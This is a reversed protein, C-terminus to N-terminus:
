KRPRLVNVVCLLVVGTDAFVAAWMGALGLAGLLLVGIKIGLALVINEMVLRHTSHGMEIAEAVAAPDDTSLVVDATEVAADTGKMGMAFGVHSRALVPADNVGDGVFAVQRGSATLREMWALKDAPLLQSHWEDLHLDEALADVASAYDGSLMVTHIGKARLAAVAAAASPKVRDGEVSFAGPTGSDEGDAVCVVGETLTGTKDFVVTDIRRVADLYNSGKFLIGRRSALGIGRFYSLPISLVLACPCSVVLFVLSRYFWTKVDLSPVVGSLQLLAPVGALLVAAAVVLPTYIRSFRTIFQEAPAKRSTAEEVLRLIRSLADEGYPRVVELRVSRDLAIMGASVEDGRRLVRAASEGTLASTDFRAEETLLLGDLPVRGGREVALMRGRSVEHPEVERSSGDAEILTCRDPRLAVLATISRRAKGVAMTQFNEGLLYFLMVAVAEPYEGIAFAGLTAITMLMFENFWSGKRLSRWTEALVEHAAVVYAAVYLAATGLPIVSFCTAVWAAALLLASAGFSLWGGVAHSHGHHDHHDHSAAAVHCASCEKSASANKPAHGDSTKHHHHHQCQCMIASIILNAAFIRIFLQLNTAFLVEEGDFCGSRQSESVIPQSVSFFSSHAVQHSFAACSASLFVLIVSIWSVKRIGWHQGLYKSACLFLLPKSYGVTAKILLAETEEVKKDPAKAFSEEFPM